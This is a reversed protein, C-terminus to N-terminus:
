PVQQALAVRLVAAQAPLRGESLALLAENAEALDFVVIDTHIALQAALRLFERADARTNATVTVLNREQFLHRQYDLEPVHDVYIGAIALTGGPALAELAEPIVSGVPAFSIAHDVPRPLVQGITGVWDAGLKRARERSTEGRSIVFVECGWAKAIQLAIHASAGFGYLALPAGPVLGSRKLARYGIIGACLLPAVHVDEGLSEPLPHVYAGPAVIVEAFGGHRHYGTFTPSWCLNERGTLCPECRGCFRHVWAVGVRDGCQWPGARQGVAVVRGVVEHGPVIPLVAPALEGTVLHLDTRCVGCATVAILLEEDAPETPALITPVLPRSPMPQPRQLVLARM